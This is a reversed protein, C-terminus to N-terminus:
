LWVVEGNADMLGDAPRSNTPKGIQVGEDEWRRQNLWTAPNPIYQGGDTQWQKSGKATEIAKLITELLARDPKIREFSKQAAGKGVKKPYAKWFTEFRENVRQPTHPTYEEKEKEKEKEQDCKSGNAVMQKSKSGNAKLKNCKAEYAKKDRDIQQAFVDFLLEERGQLNTPEEGTESYHLLGRFLRGIEADSLKRTADLMSHYACFYERMDDEEVQVIKRIKPHFGIYQRVERGMERSM